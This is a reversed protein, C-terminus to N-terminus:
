DGFMQQSTIAQPSLPAPQSGCFYRLLEAYGRYMVPTGNTSDEKVALDHQVLEDVITVDLTGLNHELPNLAATKAASSLDSMLSIEEKSIACLLEAMEADPFHVSGGLHNRLRVRMGDLIHRDSFALESMKLKEIVSQYFDASIRQVLDDATKIAFRLQGRSATHLVEHISKSFPTAAHPNSKLVRVRTEILEHFEQATLPILEIGNGSIRQSVATSVRRISQYLNKPGIILWWVNPISFFNDRLSRLMKTLAVADLNEANDLTVFLGGASLKNLVEEALKELHHRCSEVSDTDIPIPKWGIGLFTIQEASGGFFHAHLSAGHEPLWQRKEKCYQAVSEVVNSLIAKAFNAPSQDTRFSTPLRNPLPRLGWGEVGVHIRHQMINAFTTKGTGVEGGIVIIAGNRGAVQSCLKAEAAGRRAYLASDSAAPALPEVRYPSERFGFYAWLPEIM